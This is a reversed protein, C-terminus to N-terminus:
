SKAVPPKPLLRAVVVLLVIVVLALAGWLLPGGRAGALFGAGWGDSRIKEEAGLTAVSKEATLIERAVLALDYRPAQATRNGYYLAVPGPETKFLLRRVPYAAQVTGLALPPNDGNDTELQLRDGAPVSSFNLTVGQDHGPTHSWDAEALLRDYTGGREDTIKESVRLHRQFLTTPSHLVLRSVPLGAQPLTLEWRSVNPRKADNAAVFSLPLLRSVAPRELLYPIQTGERVLRLDGLGAGAHALVQPDLELQQVGGLPIGVPKRFDWPAPDLAAGLLPADALTEPRQYGPNPVAPGPVM